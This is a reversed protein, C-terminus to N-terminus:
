KQGRKWSIEKAVDNWDKYVRKEIMKAYYRKQVNSLGSLPNKADPTARNGGIERSVFKAPQKIARSKEVNDIRGFTNELATLEYSLRAPEDKPAGFRQVLTDFAQQVAVREKSHKDWVAPVATRYRSLESDISKTKTSLDFEARAEQKAEDKARRILEADWADDSQQQSIVGQEVANRLLDRTVKPKAREAAQKVKLEAAIRLREADAAKEEAADRQSIVEDLRAKFVKKPVPKEDDSADDDGSENDPLEIVDEDLIDSEDSEPSTDQDAPVLTEDLDANVDKPM